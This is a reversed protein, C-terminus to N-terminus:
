DGRASYLGSTRKPMPEGPYDRFFPRLVTTTHHHLFTFGHSGKVDNKASVTHNATTCKRNRRRLDPITNWPRNSTTWRELREFTVQFSILQFWGERSLQRENM